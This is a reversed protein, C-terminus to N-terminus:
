DDYESDYEDEEDDEEDEDDIDYFERLVSDLVADIEGILESLNDCDYADFANVMDEFVAQKEDEDLVNASITEALSIFLPKGSSWGM